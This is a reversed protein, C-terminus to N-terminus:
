GIPEKPTGRDDITLEAEAHSDTIAQATLDATSTSTGTHRLSAQAVRLEASDVILAGGQANLRRLANAHRETARAIAAEDGASYARVVAAAHAEAVEARAAEIRSLAELRQVSAKKRRLDLSIGERAAAAARNELDIAEAVKKRADADKRRAEASSKLLLNERVARVDAVLGLKSLRLLEEVIRLTPIAVARGVDTSQQVGAVVAAVIKLWVGEEGPV